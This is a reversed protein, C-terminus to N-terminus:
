ESWIPVLDICYENMQRGEPTTFSRLCVFGQRLYFSNVTDNNLKDTTLDVQHLGRQVAEQLFANVLDRGIGRNQEDPAVAISMLTGRGKELTVQKPMSFARFLRLCVSPKKIVAPLAALGFRWWCKRLLRQYFGAPEATGAVFGLIHGQDECVFAIGTPDALIGSYLEKLFRHGLFTLFFGQFSRLHISVVAACDGMEMRRINM